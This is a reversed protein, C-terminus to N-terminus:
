VPQTKANRFSSAARAAAPFWRRYGTLLLVGLVLFVVLQWNEGLVGLGVGAVLADRVEDFAVHYCTSVALSGSRYWIFAFVVAHLVTPVLSVALLFAAGGPTGQGFDTGIVILFPVHFLWTVFGHLLLARPVAHRELLRPLLYGRWSFEEGLAPLITLLLAPGFSRLVDAWSPADAPVYWGAAREVFSPLWWLALAFVFVYLYHRPKGWRWGADAFDDGRTRGYVYTGVGAMAMSLLLIPRSEPGFFFHAIQFPFSFGFVWLLYRGLHFPRKASTAVTNM